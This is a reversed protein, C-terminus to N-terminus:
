RFRPQSAAFRVLQILDLDRRATQWAELPTERCTISKISALGECTVMVPVQKGLAFAFTNTQWDFYLPALIEAESRYLDRATLTKPDFVSIGVGRTGSDLQHSDYQLLGNPWTRVFTGYITALYKLDQTLIPITFDDAGSHLLVLIVGGEFQVAFVPSRDVDRIAIKAYTWAQSNGTSSVVELPTGDRDLDRIFAIVCDGDDHLVAFSAVLASAVSTPLRAAKCGQDAVIKRLPVLPRIQQALAFEPVACALALCIAAARTVLPHYSRSSLSLM